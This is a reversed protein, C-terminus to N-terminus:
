DSPKMLQPALPVELVFPPRRGGGAQALGHTHRAFDALGIGLGLRLQRQGVQVEAAEVLRPVLGLPKGPLSLGAVV